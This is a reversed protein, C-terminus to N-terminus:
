FSWQPISLVLCKVRLIAVGADASFAWGQGGTPNEGLCLISQSGEM